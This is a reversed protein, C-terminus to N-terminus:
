ILLLFVQSESFGSFGLEAMMKSYLKPYMIENEWLLVQRVHQKM